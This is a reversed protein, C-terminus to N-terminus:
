KVLRPKDFKRVNNLSNVDFLVLKKNKFGLNWIHFDMAKNPSM